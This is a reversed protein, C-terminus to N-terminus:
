YNDKEPSFLKSMDTLLNKIEGFYSQAEGSFMDEIGYTYSGSSATVQFSGVEKFNYKTGDTHLVNNTSDLMAERVRAKSLLNMESFFEAAFYKKTTQWM